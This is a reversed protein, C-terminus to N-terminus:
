RGTGAQSQSFLRDIDLASFYSMGGSAADVAWGIPAAVGWVGNLWIWQWPMSAHVTITAERAGWVLRLTHPVARDLELMPEFIVNDCDVQSFTPDGGAQALRCMDLWFDRHASDDIVALRRGGEYVDIAPPLTAKHSKKDVKNHFKLYLRATRITRDGDPAQQLRTHGRNAMTACGTLATGACLLLLAM